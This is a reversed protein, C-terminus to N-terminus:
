PSPHTGLLASSRAFEKAAKDKAGQRRYVQGLFFHVSAVEPELSAAELLEKEAEALKDQNLYAHGLEEHVKEDSPTLQAAHELLGVAEGNENRHVLLLALNLFPQELLVGDNAHPDKYVLAIASRYALIADDTRNLAELTLGLNDEAKVSRPDLAATKQFCAAAEGFRQQTFYIRGLGYWGNPDKADIQVSRTMWKEADTMDHLVAYANAVNRLDDASPPQVQAAATYERLADEPKNERLLCYALLYHGSPTLAGNGLAVDLVGEAASFQKLKILEHARELAESSGLDGFSPVPTPAQAVTRPVPLGWGALLFVGAFGKVRTRVLRLRCTRKM